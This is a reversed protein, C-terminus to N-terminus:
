GKIIGTGGLNYVTAEFVKVLSLMYIKSFDNIM